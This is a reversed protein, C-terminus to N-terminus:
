DILEFGMHKQLEITITKRVPLNNAKCYKEVAKETEKGFKGDSMGELFGLEQLRKQVEKIDSGYMGSELMRFGTEFAGYVGNVIVVKTGIPLMEYLESVKSNEMRICGHSRNRGILGSHKTGHIGFTGWPVDLGMWHGGFGEGWKGKSVITWTGVPSPTASKGASCPYTKIYKKNEFLYLESMEVDILIEYKGPESAWASIMKTCIIIIILLLFLLIRKTRRKGM